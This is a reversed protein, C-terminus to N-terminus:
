LGLIAVAIRPKYRIFIVITFEPKFPNFVLLWMTFLTPFPQRDCCTSLSPEKFKGLAKDGDSIIKIITPNYIINVKSVDLLPRSSSFLGKLAPVSKIHWFGVHAPTLNHRSFDIEPRLGVSCLLTYCWYYIRSLVCKYPSIQFHVM